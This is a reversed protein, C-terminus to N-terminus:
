VVLKKDKMLIKGNAIVTDLHLDKDWLLLDADSGNQLIGKQPYLELASAVNCTGFVLADEMSWNKQKILYVIQKYITDVDSVGIRLLNGKADYESWSGQGDSSLTIQDMNVGEKKAQILAQYVGELSDCTIDITGGRKAFDLAQKLLADNRNVHTPQFTKIPIDTNDLADMVMQLGQREDGLHLTLIGAKKSLMGAVRVDSALHIFEDYTIHSSRHDSLALKCGIIEDIFVIDKQVSDTITVAPFGYSGTMCYVSIGQEKLAKAQAVLHDVSRTIGDTGLLGVVSTLGACILRSLTVAPAQTSFGGEGGGGIIHVHRDILGPTAIKGTADIFNMGEICPLENSVKEIKGGVIWIDQIGIDKPTYVHANKIQLMKRDGKLFVSRAAQM